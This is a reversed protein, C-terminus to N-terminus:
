VTNLIEAAIGFVADAGYAGLSPDFAVGKHPFISSRAPTSLGKNVKEQKSAQKSALDGRADCLYIVGPGADIKVKPKHVVSQRIREMREM